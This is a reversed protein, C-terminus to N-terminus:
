VKKLLIPGWKAIDANGPYRPVLPRVAAEVGARKLAPVNVADMAVYCLFKIGSRVLEEEGGHARLAALTPGVQPVLGPCNADNVALSVYLAHGAALIPVGTPHRTLVSAVIPVVGMLPVKNAANIGLNIFM